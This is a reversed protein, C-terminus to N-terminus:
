SFRCILLGQSCWRRKRFCTRRAEMTWHVPPMEQSLGGEPFSLVGGRRKRSCLCRTAEGLFGWGRARLSLGKVRKRSMWFPVRKSRLVQRGQTWGGLSVQSWSSRWGSKCNVSRLYRRGRPRLSLAELFPSTVGGRPFSRGSGVGGELTSDRHSVEVELEEDLTSAIRVVCSVFDWEFFTKAGHKRLGLGDCLVVLPRARSSKVGQSSFGFGDRAEYFISHRSGPIFGSGVDGGRGDKRWVSMVEKQWGSDVVIAFAFEKEIPMFDRTLIIRLENASLALMFGQGMESVLAIWAVHVESLRFNCLGSLISPNHPVNKARLWAWHGAEDAAASSEPEYVM